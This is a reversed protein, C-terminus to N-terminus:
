KIQAQNSNVFYNLQIASQNYENLVDLYNRQIDIAQSLFQSLEAFGIEGARYSLNAAKIIGEAQKLGSKQYYDILDNNKQLQQLAQNYATNLSLATYNSTTQQYDKELNAAKVSNRYNSRNFLPIGVTVSFGSFPPNIGYLRQSFFRGEFSPMNKQRTVKLEADAIAVNQQQWQLEPHANIALANANVAIKPMTSDIPLYVQDTNLIRKLSEQGAQIERTLQQLQIKTEKAKAQASISDLGASEGTRVRLVAAQAFSSYLSDLRKWLNQKGQLYWLRYYVEDLEKRIERRKIEQALATSKLQQQLLNKQAAYLGPWDLSQSLGIKLLGNSDDPSIDENEIFVGTKPLNFGTKSLARSQEVQLNGGRIQLNNRLAISFATDASIRTPVEQASAQQISLLLFVVILTKSLSNNSPKKTEFIMYLLPLVILTLITATILGGIVVTALPRQVEAGASSSIAMPLFGLSAVTATMLVPRLREKTGEFIRQRIDDVGAKALQNFTGILVIGNLVAVGFLAIFGVGASISFPMGRLLLAFVGGIAAMPIATFILAAQKFSKFTFYLLIFILLLAIPVAIMLRASAQKLSEFTGGYTFYYGPPLKVKRGLALQVEEVVSEVDRGSVNFSVVIRRRGDERSIQAPGTEYSVTAVQSLPIQNGDSTPIYLDRVNEISNRYTSDLRVVLDFRRENEYISGTTGGAFATNIIQNVDEINLGYGALRARDYRVVIQPLGSVREVQPQTIGKIPRIANSVQTALTNLTDMNEGFIKVAVDQRIGTMLENFRMQIPQSPEAIVGPIQSLTEGMMDALEYFDGTTEWEDKDKLIVMIDTAEPPMPDTAIDASGTKGVVMKVEPYKDKLMREAKLVTQITQSISTGQPLVFEMAYDGEELQPIFEGGMRKFLVVSVLMLVVSAAVVTYKIKMASKLIPEYKRHFFDMMRDSFTRKVEANKSLFLASAMPIYTLSLILAGLIAFGVTQAMPRFMKGEVGVLTLIPIYVVLIIIEGFAASNRIKSASQYVEEDMESQTFRGSTKRLALHHMTAEVIIVAGDVILGFDIAGLSMLNASIGFLNMMALAFLLSLPIASAVIFGARWNGLFLVLVFVVILAGEILNKEVTSIARGILDTRDLFPEIQVDAPLSKQVTLMREKVRGAVESSNAGKTMLVIGGVVEKEGNYTLAGYKPPSGLQVTAVDKILVPVIGPAKKVVTNEVDAITSMLGVGRIFYANPKKDIYAGGTNQNNKELATFIEPITVNLAKLRDPNIAVEYQKSIGGFGTVEAVGPIGYLQRAVIWDQFTRLDMASYKHESGKKPHIVYQYIEGLGTTVPAMEPKGLGEPIVERAENLKEAILQRAFYVDTSENFVLTIVSIGFRSFSRMEILGPLNGMTREVPYTIFQEVEQAALTPAKTIVQVQNNTIDPLADVPLQTASWIGWIILALTFIGIVLKNRISFRIIHDLM